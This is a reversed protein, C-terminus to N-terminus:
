GSGPMRHPKGADLSARGWTVGEGGAASWSSDLVLRVWKYGIGGMPPGLSPPLWGIRFRM